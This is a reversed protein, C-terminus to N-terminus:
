EEEWKNVRITYELGYKEHIVQRKIEPPVMGVKELRKLILEESGVGYGEFDGVFNNNDIIAKRIIKLAESRKM